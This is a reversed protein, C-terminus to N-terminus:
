STLFVLYNFILQGYTITSIIILVKFEIVINLLLIKKLETKGKFIDKDNKMGLM